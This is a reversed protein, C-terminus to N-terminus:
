DRYDRQGILVSWIRMRVGNVVSDVGRLTDHLPLYHTVEEMPYRGDRLGEAESALWSCGRIMRRHTMAGWWCSLTGLM